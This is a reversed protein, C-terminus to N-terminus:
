RPDAEDFLRSVEAPLHIERPPGGPLAEDSRGAVAATRKTLATCVAAVRRHVESDIQSLRNAREFQYATFGFGSLICVLLFALWIQLRWRISHTFMSMAGARPKM